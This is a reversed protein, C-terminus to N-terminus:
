SGSTTINEVEDKELAVLASGFITQIHGKFVRRVSPMSPSRGSALKLSTVGVGPLGCPNIWGFPELSVDVNFALGHYTIGRRIAIGISGMKSNGVWIGRNVPNREAAVGWEAATRIMAEELFHVFDKVGMKAAELDLVLYAVLQGPGHYTINGGREAQVVQIGANALFDPPVILNERGGRRGLTFVPPHELLMLLDCALAGTKRAAVFRHQLRLAEGYALMGPEFVRWTTPRESQSRNGM